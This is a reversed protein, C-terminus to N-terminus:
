KNGYDIVTTSEFIIRDGEVYKRMGVVSYMALGDLLPNIVRDILLKSKRAVDRDEIAIMTGGWSVLEKFLGTIEAFNLFVISSNKGSLSKAVSKYLPGQNLSKKKKPLAIFEQIQERNSSVVLYDEVFAITPQLSGVAMVGGWALADVGQLKLKRLPISYYDVLKEVAASMKARDPVKLSFLFSPIPVFQDVPISKLALTIDNEALRHIEETKLGTITAIKQVIDDNHGNEGQGGLLNVIELFPDLDLQSNWYYLLTDESVRFITDAKGPAATIKRAVRPVMEDEAFRIVAKEIIKGKEKWAGFFGSRFGRFKELEANLRSEKDPSITHLTKSAAQYMKFINLYCFLSAKMFTDKNMVFDPRQALSGAGGNDYRDLGRRLLKENVSFIFLDKVRTTALVTQQDLPFRRIVHGGYLTESVLEKEPVLNALIDILKASHKPRGIILLNDIIQQEFLSSADPKFPSLAITVERGFLIKVLPHEIAQHVTQSISSLKEADILSSDLEDAIQQYNIEAFARGLPSATFEDIRKGLDKQTVLLLAEEDVFSEPKIKLSFDPTFLYIIFFLLFLLPAIIAIQRM